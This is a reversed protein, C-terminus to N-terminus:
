QTSLNTVDMTFTELDRGNDLRQLGDGTQTYTGTGTEGQQITRSLTFTRYTSTSFGANYTATVAGGSMSLVLQDADGAGETLEVDTFISIRNGNPGVELKSVTAPFYLYGPDAALRGWPRRAAAVGDGMDFGTRPDDFTQAWWNQYGYSIGSLNGFTDRSWIHMEDMTYLGNPGSGGTGNDRYSDHEFHGVYPFDNIDCDYGHGDYEHWIFPYVQVDVGNFNGSGERLLDPSSIIVNDRRVGDFIQNWSSLRVADTGTGNLFNIGPNFWRGYTAAHEAVNEFMTELAAVYKSLSYPDPEGSYARPGATEGTAVGAFGPHDGLRDYVAKLLNEFRTPVDHAWIAACYGSDVLFEYGADSLDKPVMRETTTVGPTWEYPLDYQDTAFRRWDINAIFYKGRAWVADCMSEMTDLYFTGSTAGSGDTGELQPWLYRNAVVAFYSLTEDTRDALWAEGQHENTASSTTLWNKQPIIPPLGGPPPDEGGGGLSEVAFVESFRVISM